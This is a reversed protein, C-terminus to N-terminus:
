KSISELMPAERLVPLDGGLAEALAEPRSLKEKSVAKRIREFDERSYKRASHKYVSGMSGFKNRSVAESNDVVVPTGRKGGECPAAAIDGGKDGKGGKRRAQREAPVWREGGKGSSAAYWDKGGSASYWDKGGGHSEDYGEGASLSTGGSGAYGYVGKGGYGDRGSAFWDKGSAAWEKGNGYWGKGGGDKGSWEKGNSYWGRGGSDKGSWEKGSKWKGKGGKYDGGKGGKGGKVGAEDEHEDLFELPPPEQQGPEPMSSAALTTSSTFVLAPPLYRYGWPQWFGATQMGEQVPPPPPPAMPMPMPAAGLLELPPRQDTMQDAPPYCM